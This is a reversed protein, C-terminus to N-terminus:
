FWFGSRFVHEPAPGAGGAPPFTLLACASQSGTQGRSLVTVSDTVARGLHEVGACTGRSSVVGRWVLVRGHTIEAANEVVSM